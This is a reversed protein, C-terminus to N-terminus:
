MIMSVYGTGRSLTRSPYQVPINDTSHIIHFVTHSITLLHYQLITYSVPNCKLVTCTSEFRLKAYTSAYNAVHRTYCVM